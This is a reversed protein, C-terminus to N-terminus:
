RLFIMSSEIMEQHLMLEPLNHIILNMCRKEKEKEDHLLSVVATSIKNSSVKNTVDSNSQCDM